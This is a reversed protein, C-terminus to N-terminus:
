QNILGGDVVMQAGTMPPCVSVLFLAADAITHPPGMYGMASGREAERVEPNDVSSQRQMNTDIVPISPMAVFVGQPPGPPLRRTFGIVGRQQRMLAAHPCASWRRWPHCIIISGKVGTERM